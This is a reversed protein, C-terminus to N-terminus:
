GTAAGLDGWAHLHLLSGGQHGGRTAWSHGGAEERLTLSYTGRDRASDAARGLACLLCLSVSASGECDPEPLTRRLLSPVKREGSRELEM